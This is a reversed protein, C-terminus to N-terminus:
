RSAETNLSDMEDAVELLARALERAEAGTMYDDDGFLVISRTNDGDTFQVGTVLMGFDSDASAIRVHRTRGWWLRSWRSDAALQQWPGM